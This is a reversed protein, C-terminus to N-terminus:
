SRPRCCKTGDPQVGRRRLEIEAEAAAEFIRELRFFAEPPDHAVAQDYRAFDGFLPVVTRYLDVLEETTAKVMRDSRIRDDSEGWRRSLRSLPRFEAPLSRWKVVARQKKAVAALWGSAPDVMRDSAAILTAILGLLPQPERPHVVAQCNPWGFSAYEGRGLPLSEVLAVNEPHKLWSRAEDELTTTWPTTTVLISLGSKLKKFAHAQRELARANAIVIGIACDATIWTVELM